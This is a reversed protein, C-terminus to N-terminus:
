SKLIIPHHHRTKLKRGPKNKRILYQFFEVMTDLLGLFSFGIFVGLTGGINGIMDPITIRADKTVTWFKKEDFNIHIMATRKLKRELVKFSTDSFLM